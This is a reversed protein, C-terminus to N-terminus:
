KQWIFLIFLLIATVLGIIVIYSYQWTENTIHQQAIICETTQNIAGALKRLNSVTGFVDQFYISPHFVMATITGEQIAQIPVLDIAITFPAMALLRQAAQKTIIYAHLCIPRISEYVNGWVKKYSMCDDLAKGLYLIDPEAIDNHTIHHYFDIILQQITHGDVHSRADDEFIAVRNLNPDNAVEEWLLAHSLLCGVESNSLYTATAVYKKRMIDEDSNIAETTYNTMAKLKKGNVAPFRTYNWNCATMMTNFEQLRSIDADMNIVYTRDLIAEM